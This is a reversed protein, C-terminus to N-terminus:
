NPNPKEAHDIVIVETGEKRAELRLGLQDQLATFISPGSALDPPTDDPTWELKFDVGGDIGTEDAVTQRLVRTLQAALMSLPARQGILRGRAVSISGYGPRAETPEKVKAGGRAVVLAYGSAQKTESHVALKFRGALLQQLMLNRLGQMAGPGAAQANKFQPDNDDAKAEIDYRDDSKLWNGASIQNSEVRYAVMILTRLSVNEATFRGGPLSRFYTGYQDGSRTAPTPKISAVEFAAHTEQPAAVLTVPSLSLVIMLAAACAMALASAGARGRPQREDLVAGVRTVLDARNAMALLPTKQSALVRKALEVLQNAYAAGESYGLVADDCSREAELVLKRWAIWVLPNFWYVACITRALCRSLSDCRRVHELEHIIARNLDDPNWTEADRPLVIVPHLVGCTMPGPLANHLLVEVRRHIGADLALPEVVSQGRRWPLGSQRLSRIQWLGVVVPLLFFLTFGAAWGAALLNSLSLKLHPVAATVSTAAAVAVVSSNADVGTVLSLPTAQRQVDVPMGVHLPPMLVAAIPLLLMVSFTAALLAHRVAARNGHALWAAVLGLAMTVTAKAVISAALSNSVALMIRSIASMM